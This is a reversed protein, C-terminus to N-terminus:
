INKKNPPPLRPNFHRKGTNKKTTFLELNVSSVKPVKKKLKQKSEINLDIEKISKKLLIERYSDDEEDSPPLERSPQPKIDSTEDDSWELTNM